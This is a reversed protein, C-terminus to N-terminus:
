LPILRKYKYTLVNATKRLYGHLNFYHMYRDAAVCAVRIMATNRAVPQDLWVSTRLYSYAFSPKKRGNKVKLFRVWGGRDLLREFTIYIQEKQGLNESLDFPRCPHKGVKLPGKSGSQSAQSSLTESKLVFKLILRLFKTAGFVELSISPLLSRVSTYGM